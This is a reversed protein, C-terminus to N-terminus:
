RRRRRKAARPNALVGYRQTLRHLLATQHGMPGYRLRAAGMITEVRDLDDALLAMELDAHLDSLVTERPPLELPNPLRSVRTAEAIVDDDTWGTVRPDLPRMGLKSRHRNIAGLAEEVEPLEQMDEFDDVTIVKLGAIDARGRVREMFRHPDGGPVNGLSEIGVVVVPMDDRSMRKDINYIGHDDFDAYDVLALIGGVAQDLESWKGSKPPGALQAPTISSSPERIPFGESAWERLSNMMARAEEANNGVFVFGRGHPKWDSPTYLDLATRLEDPSFMM